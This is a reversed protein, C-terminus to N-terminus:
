LLRQKIPVATQSFAQMNPITFSIPKESAKFM